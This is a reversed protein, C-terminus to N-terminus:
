KSAKNNGTLYEARAKQYWAEYISQTHLLHEMKTKENYVIALDFDRDPKRYPSSFATDVLIKKGPKQLGATFDTMLTDNLVAELGGKPCPKNEAMNFGLDPILPIVDLSNVDLVFATCGHKEHMTGKALILDGICVATSPFFSPNSQHNGNPVSAVCFYPIESHAIAVQMKALHANLDAAFSQKLPLFLLFLLTVTNM